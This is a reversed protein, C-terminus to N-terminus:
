PTWYGERLAPGLVREFKQNLLEKEKLLRNQDEEIQELEAKKNEVLAWAEDMKKQEEAIITEFNNCISIYKNKPSYQLALFISRSDDSSVPRTEEKGPLNDPHTFLGIPTDM